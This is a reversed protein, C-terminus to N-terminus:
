PFTIHGIKGIFFSIHGAKGVSFYYSWCADILDIYKEEIFVNM